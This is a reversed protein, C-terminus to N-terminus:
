YTLLFGKIKRYNMPDVRMPAFFSIASKRFLYFFFNKFVIRKFYTNLKSGALGAFPTQEGDHARVMVARVIVVHINDPINLVFDVDVVYMAM